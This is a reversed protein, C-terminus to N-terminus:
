EKLKNRFILLFVGIILSGPGFFMTYFQWKINLKPSFNSLKDLVSKLPSTPSYYVDVKSGVSYKQTLNIAEKRDYLETWGFRVKNGIYKIGDLWYM